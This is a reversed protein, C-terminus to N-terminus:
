KRDLKQVVVDKVNYLQSLREVQQDHGDEEHGGVVQVQEVEVVIVDVKEYKLNYDEAM